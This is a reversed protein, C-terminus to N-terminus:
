GGGLLVLGRQDCISHSTSRRQTSSVYNNANTQTSSQSSAPSPNACITAASPSPNTSAEEPASLSPLPSPRFPTHVDQYAEIICRWRDETHSTSWARDQPGRAAKESRGQGQGLPHRDQGKGVICGTLLVGVWENVAGYWRSQNDYNDINSLIDNSYIMSSTTRCSNKARFKLSGRSALVQSAAEFSYDWRKERM